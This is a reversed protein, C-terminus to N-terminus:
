IYRVSDVMFSVDFEVVVNEINNAGNVLVFLCGYDVDANVTASVSKEDTGTYNAIGFSTTTM